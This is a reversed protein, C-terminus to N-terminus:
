DTPRLDCPVNRFDPSRMLVSIIRRSCTTNNEDTPIQSPRCIRHPVLIFRAYAEAAYEGIRPHQYRMGRFDELRSGETVIGLHHDVSHALENTTYWDRKDQKTVVELLAEQM